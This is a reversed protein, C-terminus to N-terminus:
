NEKMRKELCATFAPRSRRKLKNKIAEKMRKNFVLCFVFGGSNFDVGGRRM